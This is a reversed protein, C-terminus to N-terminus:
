PRQRRTTTAATTITAMMVAAAMTTAMTTMTTATTATTVTMVVALGLANRLVRFVGERLVKQENFVLLVCVDGGHNLRKGRWHRPKSPCAYGM